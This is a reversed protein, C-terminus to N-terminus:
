SPLLRKMADLLTSRPAPRRSEESLVWQATGARRAEPLADVAEIIGKVSSSELDIDLSDEDLRPEPSGGGQEVTDDDDGEDLEDDDDGGDPAGSPAEPEPADQLREPIVYDEPVDQGPFFIKRQQDDGSVHHLQVPEDSNLKAM